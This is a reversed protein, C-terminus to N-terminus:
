KNEVAVTPIEMCVEQNKESMGASLVEGESLETPNGGNNQIANLLEDDKNLEFVMIDSNIIQAEEKGKELDGKNQPLVKRLIEEFERKSSNNAKDVIVPIPDPEKRTINVKDQEYSVTVGSLQSMMSKKMAGKDKRPKRAKKHRKDGHCNQLHKELNRKSKLMMDCGPSTCKLHDIFKEHFTRIHMNLNKKYKYSRNCDVYSCKFIESYSEELHLKCHLALNKKFFFTKDCIACKYSQKPLKCHTRRHKCIESWKEFMEGCDCEFSRHRAVHKNYAHQHVFMELCKDCKFPADENHVTVKHAHLQSKHKFGESCKDCNFSLNKHNRNVHKKLSYKNAFIQGCHPESCILEESQKTENHTVVIHRKLHSDNTYSKECGEIHCKYPKLGKHQSQIHNKLRYPRSFTALCGPEPCKHSGTKNGTSAREIVKNITTTTTTAEHESTTDDSTDGFSM